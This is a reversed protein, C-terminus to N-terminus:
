TSSISLGLILMIVTSWSVVSMMATNSSVISTMPTINNTATPSSKSMVSTTNTPLITSNAKKNNNQADRYMPVRNGLCDAVTEFTYNKGRILDIIRGTMSVSFEEIDHQLSIFSSAPTGLELEKEINTYVLEYKSPDGHYRWDNSDVNWNIITYNMRTLALRTNENCEGHPPRMFNPTVKIVNQVAKEVQTMEERIQAETLTNLHPHTHTHLAIQHGDDYAQKLFGSITLDIVNVGLVFFTVTVQKEKLTKLLAPTYLSPGDDFTLAFVGPKECTLVIGEGIDQAHMGGMLSIAAIFSASILSLLKM